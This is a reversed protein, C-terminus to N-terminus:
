NLSLSELFVTSYKAPTSFPAGLAFLCKQLTPWSVHKVVYYASNDLCVYHCPAVYAFQIEFVSNLVEGSDGGKEETQGGALRPATVSWCGVKWIDVAHM